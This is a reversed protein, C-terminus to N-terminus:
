INEVELDFPGRVEVEEILGLKGGFFDRFTGNPRLGDNPSM